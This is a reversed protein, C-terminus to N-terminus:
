EFTQTVTVKPDISVVSIDGTATFACLLITLFTKM